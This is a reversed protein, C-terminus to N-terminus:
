TGVHGPTGQPAVERGMSVQSWGDTFQLTPHGTHLVSPLCLAEGGEPLAAGWVSDGTPRAQGLSPQARAQPAQAPSPRAQSPTETEAGERPGWSLPFAARNGRRLRGRGFMVSLELDFADM